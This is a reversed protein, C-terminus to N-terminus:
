ISGNGNEGGYEVVVTSRDMGPVGLGSRSAADVLRTITARDTEVIYVTREVAAPQEVSAPVRGMALAAVVACVACAVACQWLAVPRAWFRPGRSGADDFLRDMRADLSASPERRKLERLEKELDSM